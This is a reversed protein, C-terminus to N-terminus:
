CTLKDALIICFCTSWGHHLIDDVSPGVNADVPSFPDVRGSVLALSMGQTQNSVLVGGCTGCIRFLTGDSNSNGAQSQSQPVTVSTGTGTTQAESSGCVEQSEPVRGTCTCWRAASREEGAQRQAILQERKAEEEQRYASRKESILRRILASRTKRSKADSGRGLSPGDVFLIQKNGARPTM